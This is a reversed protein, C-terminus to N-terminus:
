GDERIEATAAAQAAAGRRVWVGGRTSSTGQETQKQSRLFKILYAGGGCAAAPAPARPGWHQRAAGASAVQGSVALATGGGSRTQAAADAPVPV